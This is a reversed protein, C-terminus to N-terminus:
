LRHHAQHGAAVIARPTTPRNGPVKYHVAPKDAPPSPSLYQRQLLLDMKEASSPPGRPAPSETQWKGNVFNLKGRKPPASQPRPPHRAPAKAPAAHKVDLTPVFRPADGGGLFDLVDFPDSAEPHPGTPRNCSICVQATTGAPPHPRRPELAGDAVRGVLADLEREMAGLRAVLEDQRVGPGVGSHELWDRLIPKLVNPLNHRTARDAAETAARTAVRELADIRGAAANVEEVQEAAWAALKDLHAAERERRGADRAEHDAMRRVHADVDDCRRELGDAIGECTALAGRHEAAGAEFREAYKEQKFEFEGQFRRLARLEAEITGQRSANANEVEVAAEAAAIAAASQRLGRDCTAEVTLALALAREAKDDAESARELALDAAERLPAALAELAAAPAAGRPAAAVVRPAATVAVGECIRACRAREEPTMSAEEAKRKKAAAREARKEKRKQEYSKGADEGAPEPAAAAAADLKVDGVLRRTTAHTRAVSEAKNGASEAAAAAAQVAEGLKAIRPERPQRAATVEAAMQATDGQKKKALRELDQELAAGMYNQERIRSELAEADAAASAAWRRAAAPAAAARALVPPAALAAAFSIRNRPKAAPPAAAARGLEAVPEDDDDTARQGGAVSMRAMSQRTTRAQRQVDALEESKRKSEADASELRQEARELREETTRKWREDAEQRRDAEDARMDLKSCRKESQHCRTELMALRKELVDQDMRLAAVRAKEAAVDGELLECRRLATTALKAASRLASKVQPGRPVDVRVSGLQLADLDLGAAQREFLLMYQLCEQGELARGSPTAPSKPSLLTEISRQSAAPPSAPRPTAPPAEDFVEEVAAAVVESALASASAQGKLAAM